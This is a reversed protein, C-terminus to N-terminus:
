DSVPPRPLEGNAGGSRSLRRSYLLWFFLLLGAVAVASPNLSLVLTLANVYISFVAPGAAEGMILSLLVAVLVLQFLLINVAWLFDTIRKM